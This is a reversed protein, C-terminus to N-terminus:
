SSSQHTELNGLLTWIPHIRNPAVIALSNVTSKAYNYQLELDSIGLDTLVNFPEPLSQVLNIGTALQYANSIGPFNESFRISAPWFEEAGGIAIELKAVIPPALSELGPYYGGITAEVPLHGSPVASARHVAQQFVVWLKGLCARWSRPSVSNLLWLGPNPPLEITVDNTVGIKAFAETRGGLTIKTLSDSQNKWLELRHSATDTRWITAQFSM